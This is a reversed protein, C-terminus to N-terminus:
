HKAHTIQKQNATHHAMRVNHHHEHVEKEHRHNMDKTKHHTDVLLADRQYDLREHEIDNKERQIALEQEMKLMKMKHEMIDMEIQASDRKANQQLKQMEIQNRMVLPNQQMEQMQAQHAEERKKKMQEMWQASREKLLEIGRIEVNDLVIDMGETNMFEAFMPDIQKLQVIQQLAQNKEIRFNVGAEIVVNLVNTDYFMSPKGPKNVEAYSKKGEEDVIPLTRPTDYLKPILSVIIQGVRQLGHLFGIVYPMAASNSQSAGAIIAKGSLQNDNIGLAADFSGLEMQVLSDCGSFAQLIEPPCPMKPIPMIPDPIPQNPDGEYFANVVVQSAKQMDKLPQLFDEEKPLAEKKIIFKHQIINEIENALSIGAYNKLRQAGKAHYVYPRCVQRVNGNKPTKILVSNGDFFVIPLFNYDPSEHKVVQNEVIRYRDITEIQTTRPKGMIAPIPEFYNWNEQAKEYVSLPVVKGNALKVIRVDKVHKEYYDAVILIKEGRDNLYSWNFGEVDKRFSIQDFKIGPLEEEAREKEMPTLEFCFRGDGKHSEIALKDWGCLTPDFVRAFNPVQDFSMSNAWETTVRAASFGGSLIDKYIEYQTHRNKSDLFIHKLHKEVLEITQVDVQTQDDAHVSISPEQKEFEGLLRSIYAELINFELTPRGINMLLAIEDSSLSSEFVFRRFENFRDYNHKFYDHSGRINKKIEALRDQHKRAPLDM